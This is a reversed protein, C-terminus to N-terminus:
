AVVGVVGVAGVVILRTTPTVHAADTKGTSLDDSQAVPLLLLWCLLLLLGARKAM